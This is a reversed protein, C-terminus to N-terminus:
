KRMNSPMKVVVDNGSAQDETTSQAPKSNGTVPAGLGSKVGISSKISTGVGPSTAANDTATRPKLLPSQGIPAVTSPASASGPKIAGLDLSGPPSDIAAGCVAPAALILLSTAAAHKMYSSKM